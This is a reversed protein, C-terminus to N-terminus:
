LGWSLFNHPGTQFSHKDWYTCTPIYIAQPEHCIVIDPHCIIQGKSIFIETPSDCMIIIIVYTGPDHHPFTCLGLFHGATCLILRKLHIDWHSQWVHHHLNFDKTNTTFLHMIRLLTLSYMVLFCPYLVLNHFKSLSCWLNMYTFITSTHATFPQYLLTDHTKANFLVTMPLYCHNCFSIMM